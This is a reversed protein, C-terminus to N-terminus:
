EHTIEEVDHLTIIIENVCYRMDRLKANSKLLGAMEDHVPKVLSYVVPNFEGGPVLSMLLQAARRCSEISTLNTVRIAQLTDDLQTLLKTLTIM